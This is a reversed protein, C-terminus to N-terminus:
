PDAVRVLASVAENFAEPANPQIGLARAVDSVLQLVQAQQECVLANIGSLPGQMLRLDEQRAVIPFIPRKAGWRAGLEFLVYASTVGRDSVVALVTDAALVEQRLTEDTQSGIPLRYGDVSTCRIQEPRLNLADRLVRVTAAALVEDASSHSIFVALPTGAAVEDQPPNSPSVRLPQFARGAELEETLVQLYRKAAGVRNLFNTAPANLVSPGRMQRQFHELEEEGFAGALLQEMRRKWRRFRDFASSVDGDGEYRGEISTLQESLALVEQLQDEDAM